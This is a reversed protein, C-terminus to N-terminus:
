SIDSGFYKNSLETLTGDARLEDIAANIAALLSASDEGKRVPMAVESAEETLAVIKIDADPHM